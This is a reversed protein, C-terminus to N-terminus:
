VLRLASKRVKKNSGFGEEKLALERESDVKRKGTQLSKVKLPGSAAKAQAAAITKKLTEEEEANLKEEVESSPAASPDASVEAAIEKASGESSSNGTGQLQLSSPDTAIVVDSAAATRHKRLFQQLAGYGNGIPCVGPSQVSYPFMFYGPEM